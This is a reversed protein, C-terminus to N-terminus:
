GCSTLPQGSVFKTENFIFILNKQKVNLQKGNKKSIRKLNTQGWRLVVSIYIM